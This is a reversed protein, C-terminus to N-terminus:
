AAQRETTLLRTIADAPVPRSIFYGQAYDCGVGRLYDLCAEDEIGEAVVTLGLEHALEITSRVLVADSRNQHAFQVFSRDIKLESLPLQKLYSLTSQGTGYDDMSVAIGMARFSELAIRAGEPDDMAASETVEFILRERSVSTREFMELMAENFRASTLLKASLNIAGTIAHGAAAWTELAAITRELVYLTLGAIRDSREALPIFLDPRLVGRTPHNWRVLAEVSAIEGARIDLKPQFLVDLEHNLLADSLEGLLSLEFDVAEEEAAAHIHWGHGDAHGREAALAAHAIARQPAEDMAAFGLSLTVDVRRGDVEVPALMLSRLTDSLDVCREPTIDTPWALMRADIRYVTAGADLLQLRDCIRRILQALADAALGAALKDFDAIRAVAIGNAESENMASLLAFRNRLGTAPDHARRHHLTWYTNRAATLVITLTLAILGPAIALVGGWLQQVAMACLFLAVPAVFAVLAFTRRRRAVVLGPALLMAIALSVPWGIRRPVGRLLTETALGQVVVGPIVGYNPVAFRDGLEVATAGILVQKGRLADPSITGDRVDIFSHRPITAPDVAYDIPFSSDASGLAGALMASLSPRPVGATFTGVPAERVYGDADPRVSVAALAARERLAAAPLSDTWGQAGGGAAQRFTPLVVKGDARGIAAALAADEEHTSRSSFDIDFAITSAGAKRLADIVRAHQSRPWPWRNTAAISRADVEVIHLTGSAPHQRLWASWAAASRELQVGTRTVGAAIGIATALILIAVHSRGLSRLRHRFSPM